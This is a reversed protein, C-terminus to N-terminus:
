SFISKGIMLKLEENLVLNTADVHDCITKLDEINIELANNSYYNPFICLFYFLIGCTFLYRKM